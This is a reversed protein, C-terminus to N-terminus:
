ISPTSNTKKKKFGGYQNGYLCFWTVTKGFTLTRKLQIGWFVPQEWFKIIKMGKILVLSSCKRKHSSDTWIDEKLLTQEDVRRM